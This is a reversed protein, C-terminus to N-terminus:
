GSRISLFNSSKNTNFVGNPLGNIVESIKLLIVRSNCRYNNYLITTSYIQQIIPFKTLIPLEHMNYKISM